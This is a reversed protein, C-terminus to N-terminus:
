LEVVCGIPLHDSSYDSNPIPGIQRAKINAQLDDCVVPVTYIYNIDISGSGSGSSIFIHDIWGSFEDTQTTFLPRLHHYHPLTYINSMKRHVKLDSLSPPAPIVCGGSSSIYRSNLRGRGSTYYHSAVLNDHWSKPHEPHTTTLTTTTLLEFVGTSTGTIGDWVVGGSGGADSGSDDNSGGSNYNVWSMEPLSNLDGCVILPIDIFGSSSSSSEFEGNKSNDDSGGGVRGQCESGSGSGSGSSGGSGGGVRGQCENEFRKVARM